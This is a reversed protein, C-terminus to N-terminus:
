GAMSSHKRRELDEDVRRGGGGRSGRELRWPKKVRLIINGEKEVREEGFAGEYCMIRLGSM